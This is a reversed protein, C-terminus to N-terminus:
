PFIIIYLKYKQTLRQKRVLYLEIFIQDEKLTLNINEQIIQKQGTRYFNTKIYLEVSSQAIDKKEM